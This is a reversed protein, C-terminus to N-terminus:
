EYTPLTKILDGSSVSWMNIVKDRGGSLLAEGNSSFELNTVVSVHGDLVFTCSRSSLDWIRIKCDDSGSALIIDNASRKSSHFALCSVVGSHGKFYHTAHGRFVDWVRVTSDASGTAALTSSPDFAMALVPADHAKWTRIVTETGLQVYKLQLSQSAILVHEDNPAVEFCTIEDNNNEITKVNEASDLSVICISDNLATVLRPNEEGSTVRV